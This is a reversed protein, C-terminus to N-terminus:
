KKRSVGKMEMSKVLKFGDWETHDWEWTVDDPMRVTREGVTREGTTTNRNTWKMHWTATTDDYKVTGESIGGANDFYYTRYKGAKADWVWVQLGAFRSDDGVMGESREVLVWRDAEWTVSNVGSGTVVKDSGPVRIEATGQWSGIFAELRDLEAPRVPPQMKAATGSKHCGVLGLGTLLLAAVCLGRATKM